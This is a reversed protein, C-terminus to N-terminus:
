LKINIFTVYFSNQSKKDFFSPTFSAIYAARNDIKYIIKATVTNNQPITVAESLDTSFEQGHTLKYGGPIIIKEPDYLNNNEDYISSHMTGIRGWVTLEKSVQNNTIQLNCTAETAGSRICNLFKITYGELTYTDPSKIPISPASGPTANLVSFIGHNVDMKLAASGWQTGNIHLDPIDLVGTNNNFNSAAISGISFLSLFCVFALKKM